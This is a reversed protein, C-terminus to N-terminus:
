QTNINAGLIVEYTDVSTDGKVASLAIRVNMCSQVQFTVFTTNVTDMWLHEYTLTDPTHLTMTNGLLTFLDFVGAEDHATDFAVSAVSMPDPDTWTILQGSTIDAGSGLAINGAHWSIWFTRKHDCNLLGLQDTQAM